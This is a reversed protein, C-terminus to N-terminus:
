RMFLANTLGSGHVGVLVSLRSVALLQERLSLHEMVLPEAQVRPGVLASVSTLLDAQAVCAWCRGQREGCECVRVCVCALVYVRLVYLVM